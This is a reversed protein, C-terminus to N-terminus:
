PPQERGVCRAGSSPVCAARAAGAPSRCREPVAVLRRWLLAATEGVVIASCSIGVQARPQRM